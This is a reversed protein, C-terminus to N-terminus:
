MKLLSNFVNELLFCTGFRGMLNMKQIQLAPITLFEKVLSNQLNFSDCM